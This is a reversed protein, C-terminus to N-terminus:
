KWFTLWPIFKYTRYKLLEIEDRTEFNVTVNYYKRLDFASGYNKQKTYDGHNVIESLMVENFEWIFLSDAISEAEKRTLDPSVVFRLEITKKDKVM